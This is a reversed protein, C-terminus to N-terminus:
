AASPTMASTIREATEPFSTRFRYYGARTLRSVTRPDIGLLRAFRDKLQEQEIGRNVLLALTGGPEGEVAV